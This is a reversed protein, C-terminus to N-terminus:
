LRSQAVFACSAYVAQDLDFYSIKKYNLIVKCLSTLDNLIKENYYKIFIFNM